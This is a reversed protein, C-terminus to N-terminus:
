RLYKSVISEQIKIQSSTTFDNKIKIKKKKKKM